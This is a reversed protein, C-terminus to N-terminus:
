RLVEARVMVRQIPEVSPLRIQPYEVHLGDLRHRVDRKRMGEDFSQNAGNPAFTQVAGQEPRGRIQLHLEEIELPVIVAMSRMRPQVAARRFRARVRATGARTDTRISPLGVTAPQILRRHRRSGPLRRVERRTSRKFHRWAGRGLASLRSISCSRLLALPVYCTM